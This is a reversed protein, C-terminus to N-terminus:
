VPAVAKAFGVRARDVKARLAELLEAPVDPEVHGGAVFRQFREVFGMGHLRLGRPDFFAEALAAARGTAVVNFYRLSVTQLGFARHWTAALLEGAAKAAAYPSVPLVPM